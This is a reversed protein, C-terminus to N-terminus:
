AECAADGGESKVKVAKKESKGNASRKVKKENKLGVFRMVSEELVFSKGSHKRNVRFCLM